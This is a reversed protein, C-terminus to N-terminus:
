TRVTAPHPLTLFYEIATIPINEPDATLKLLVPSVWVFAWSSLSIQHSDPSGSCPCDFATMNDFKCYKWAFLVSTSTKLSNTCYIETNAFFDHCLDSVAKQKGFSCRQMASNNLWLLAICDSFLRYVDLISDM